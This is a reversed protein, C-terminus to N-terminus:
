CVFLKVLFLCMCFVAIAAAVVDVLIVEFDPDLNKICRVSLTTSAEDDVAYSVAALFGLFVFLLLIHTRTM